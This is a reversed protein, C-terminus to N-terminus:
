RGRGGGARDAGWTGGAGPPGPAVAAAAPVVGAVPPFFMAGDPTAVNVALGAAEGMAPVMEDLLRAGLLAAFEWSSDGPGHHLAFRALEAEDTFACLWRVGGSRASWLGGDALPVLLVTERAAAVMEQPDGTGARQAAILEVLDRHTGM